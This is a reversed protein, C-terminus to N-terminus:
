EKPAEPDGKKGLNELLAEFLYRGSLFYKSQYDRFEQESKLYNDHGEPYYDKMMDTENINSYGLSQAMAALLRTRELEWNRQANVQNKNDLSQRHIRWAEIVKREDEFVIDIQNLGRVFDYHIPSGRLSYLMLFLSSKATDKHQEENLKRGVKVANIPGTAIYYVNFILILTSVAWFAIELSDKLPM